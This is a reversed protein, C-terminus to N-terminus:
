DILILQVTKPTRSKPTGTKPYRSKRTRMKSLQFDPAHNLTYITRRWRNGNREQTKTIIGKNTLLRMHKYFRDAGMQLDKRMLDIGPYCSIDAGAFSCLCAYIAKAEPTLEKSRMIERYVIGYGGQTGAM